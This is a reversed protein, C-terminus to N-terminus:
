QSWSFSVTKVTWELLRLLSLGPHTNSLPSHLQSLGEGAEQKQHAWLLARLSYGSSELNEEEILAAERHKAEHM